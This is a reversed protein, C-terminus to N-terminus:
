MKQLIDADNEKTKVFVIKLFGEEVFERVFHYRIDVHKTRSTATVNETMYIAGINDVRVVIPTDVEFGISQLIKVVFCIEKAAESLSVYEAESSSLTVSRMAKSHWLIPVGLLYIIFGSVSIRNDKDGAFDSDTYVTIIWKTISDFKPHIKLCYERTDIVYKIIRLLEKYAAETAGDLVKSLERVANAIDPRTHKLLYLLMGVGSRYRSQREADITPTEEKPRIIGFGPTGPTRYVNMNKVEDWFTTEIKDLLHCQQIWAKTQDENMYINCSLYDKLEEEIKLTFGKEKLDHIAENIAKTHGICLCDDVYLAILVLGNKDKRRWLCPDVTGGEFGLERLIKVTKLYFQRASQVLGYITQQLLVVEDPKAGIGDPCEMYIEEGPNLDGHLFATEVDAIKADLRLVLKTILLIRWTVDNVVPAYHETFDIGAIQSYGCAVLRARFIGNRKIKFIWKNKVCRRGQPMDRRKVVRWVGRHRMDRLEKRIAERWKKREEPNPHNWAEDFTKPEKIDESSMLVLEELGMFLVDELELPRNFNSFLKDLMANAAEHTLETSDQDQSAKERGIQSRTRASPPLNDERGAQPTVNPNFYDQLRRLETYQRSRTNTPLANSEENNSSVTSPITETEEDEDSEEESYTDEDLARTAMYKGNRQGLWLVDRSKLIHKTKLNFMRYVDTSHNEAYGVFLCPIGRDALKSRVKKNSHKAVIGVEGFERLYKAHNPPTGYFLEHSSKNNQGRTAILNELVTATSACECWLGVKHSDSLGASHYMARIHGYLTAFKREVKANRQPTGPGTYEFQLGLGEQKAEQEFKHNEGADDCRIYKVQIGHKAKLDKILPIMYDKTMSKAKLFFSWCYDTYSDVCLLWFKSDGYSRGKVSSIDIYLRHGPINDKTDSQKSVTAQKMKGIGCSDCKALKGYLFGDM